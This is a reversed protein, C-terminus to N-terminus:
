TTLFAIYTILSVFVGIWIQLRTEPALIHVVGTFFFNHLLGIPECYWFKPKYVAALMSTRPAKHRGTGRADMAELRAKESAREEDDRRKFYAMLFSALFPLGLSYTAIGLVASLAAWAPWDGSYCEIVPDDRILFVLKGTNGDLGASVCDFVAVSKRCVMPYLFLMAFVLTNQFRPHVWALVMSRMLLRRRHRRSSDAPPKKEASQPAFFPDVGEANSFLTDADRGMGYHCSVSLLRLVFTLFFVAALVIAPLALTTALEFYFGLRKGNICEAPLVAFVDPLMQALSDM